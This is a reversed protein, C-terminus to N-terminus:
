GSQETELDDTADEGDAGVHMPANHAGSAALSELPVWELETQRASGMYLALAIPSDPARVCGVDALGCNRLRAPPLGALTREFRLSSAKLCRKPSIEVGVADMSVANAMALVTGFGCFPDVVCPVPSFSRLFAVGTLCADLGIGKAWLMDGREFVDPCSFRASLYPAPQKGFCILHSYTPRGASRKGFSSVLVIKHFVTCCGARDAALSCLHSKDIWELVTGDSAQVRVPSQLFIAFCGAPLCHLVLEATSIFWDKYIQTRRYSKEKKSSAKSLPGDLPKDSDQLGAFLHPLEIIDPLSTFVSGGLHGGQSQLAKLYQLADACHITRSTPQRKASEQTVNDPGKGSLVSM